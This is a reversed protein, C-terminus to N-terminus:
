ELFLRIWADAPWGAYHEPDWGRENVLLLYFEPTHM